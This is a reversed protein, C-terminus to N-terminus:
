CGRRGPTTSTSTFGKEQTVQCRSAYSAAHNSDGVFVARGRAESRGQCDVSCVKPQGNHLKRGSKDELTSRTITFTRAQITLPDFLCGFAHSTCVPLFVVHTSNRTM